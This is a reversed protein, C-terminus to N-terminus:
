GSGFFCMQAKRIHGFRAHSWSYVSKYSACVASFHPSAGSVIDGADAAALLAGFGGLSRPM